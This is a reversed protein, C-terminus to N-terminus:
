NTSPLPTSRREIEAAIADTFTKKDIRSLTKSVALKNAIETLEAVSLQGHQSVVQDDKITFIHKCGIFCNYEPFQRGNKNFPICDYDQRNESNVLLLRNPTLAIFVAYKKDRNALGLDKVLVIDGVQFSM